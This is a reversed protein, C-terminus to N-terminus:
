YKNKKGGPKEEGQNEETEDDWFVEPKGEGAEGTTKEEDWFADKKEKEPSEEAPKGEGEEKVSGKGPRLSSGNKLISGLQESLNIVRKIDEIAEGEPEQSTQVPEQAQASRSRESSSRASPATDSERMEGGIKSGQGYGEGAKEAEGAYAERSRVRAERGGKEEQLLKWQSAVLSRMRVLFAFKDQELREIENKLDKLKARAEELMREAQVEAKALILEAERQVNQRTSESARQAMILTENLSSELAQYNKLKEQLEACQTKLVINERVMEEMTEAASALLSYVEDEKFGRFGRKFDPKKLELPTIKV